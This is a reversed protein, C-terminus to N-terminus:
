KKTPFNTTGEGAVASDMYLVNKLEDYVTENGSAMAALGLGLCSGHQVIENGIAFFFFCFMQGLHAFFTQTVIHVVFKGNNNKLATSIYNVVDGGHNAHVLGLAYM